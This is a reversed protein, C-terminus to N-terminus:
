SQAPLSPLPYQNPVSIQRSTKSSTAPHKPYPQRTLFADKTVCRTCFSMALTTAHITARKRPMTQRPLDRLLDLVYYSSWMNSVPVLKDTDPTHSNILLPGDASSSVRLKIANWRFRRRESHPLACAETYSCMTPTSAIAEKSLRNTRQRNRTWQPQGHSRSPNHMTSEFRRENAMQEESSGKLELSHRRCPEIDMHWM